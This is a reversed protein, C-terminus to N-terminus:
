MAQASASMPRDSPVPAVARTAREMPLPLLATASATTPCVTAAASTRPATTPRATASSAPGSATASCSDGAAASASVSYRRIMARPTGAIESMLAATAQWRPAPSALRGRATMIATLASFMGNDQTNDPTSTPVSARLSVPSSTRTTASAFGKGKSMPIAPIAQPVTIACVSPAHTTSVISARPEEPTASFRRLSAGCRTVSTRNALSPNGLKRSLAPM